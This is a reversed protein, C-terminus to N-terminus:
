SRPEARPRLWLLLGVSAVFFPRAPSVDHALVGLVLGYVAIAEALTWCLVHQTTADAASDPALSRRRLVVIALAQMTAIGLLVWGLIRTDIVPSGERAAVVLLVVFYAAVAVVLGLWIIRAAPLPSADTL